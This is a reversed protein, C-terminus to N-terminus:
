MIESGPFEISRFLMAYELEEPIQNILNAAKIVRKKTLDTVQVGQDTTEFEISDLHMIFSLYEYITTKEIETLGLNDLVRDIKTFNTMNHAEEIETQKPM